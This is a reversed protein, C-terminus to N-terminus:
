GPVPCGLDQQFAVRTSAGARLASTLKEDRRYVDPRFGFSDDANTVATWYLVYVPLPENLRLLTTADSAIANGLADPPADSNHALIYSALPVIEQVRVCGHSLYRDMRAFLNRAPTDHLYVSFRNPLELKLKGLANDSGPLQRIQYPFGARSVTKWDVSLGHPDGAPGNVLVMHHGILYKPDNRLRPLIENQAISAPVNWPPNATIGTIEARFMPTPTRPNGAIVRSTLVPQTDEIVELMADPINVAVYRAEFRRPMWRWREMNAIIQEIRNSVPTNLMALTRAGVRGDPELGNRSQYDKVASELNNSGDPFEMGQLEATLRQRLLTLRSDSGESLIVESGGQIEPWGGKAQMARYRALEAKLRAYEKHLPPLDAILRDLNGTTLAEQLLAAADFHQPTLEILGDFTEPAIRGARMDRMYRLFADTLAVDHEASDRDPRQSLLGTAFIGSRYSEPNLGDSGADRMAGMASAAQKEAGPEGSWAARYGRSGYLQRLARIDWQPQGRGDADLLEQIFPATRATTPPVNPAQGAAGNTSWGAFVAVLLCGIGASNTWMRRLTEFM